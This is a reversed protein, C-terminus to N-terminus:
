HVVGLKVNTLPEQHCVPVWQSYPEVLVAVQAEAGLLKGQIVEM